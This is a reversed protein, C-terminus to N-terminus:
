CEGQGMIEICAETAKGFDVGGTVEYVDCDGLLRLYAEDSFDQSQEGSLGPEYFLGVGKTFAPFLDKRDALKVKRIKFEDDNRRWNLVVLGKMKASLKFRDNGFCDDIFVDYKQEFDWLEGASIARMKEREKPPLISKLSKNGMITGPNVRPLKPVGRMTIGDGNVSVMVRDNSVFSVGRNMIHLSLTSKGMGSFGAIALGRGGNMVGAAHMLLSGKHLTWQIFRNIIFNVVQNDNDVCPGVALNEGGGFLFAMGTLRKRVIRGSPFDIYEEKIKVKGPDPQKISFDMDFDPAETELATVVIDPERGEGKFDSFYRELKGILMESNSSVKIACSDFLLNLSATIPYKEKYEKILKGIEMSRDRM